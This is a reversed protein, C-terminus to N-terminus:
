THVALLTSETVEAVRQSHRRIGFSVWRIHVFRSLPLALFLKGCLLLLCSNPRTLFGLESAQMLKLELLLLLLADRVEPLDAYLAHHVLFEGHAPSRPLLLIILAPALLSKQASRALAQHPRCEHVAEMVPLAIPLGLRREDCRHRM